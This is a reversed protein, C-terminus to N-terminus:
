LTTVKEDTIGWTLTTGRTDLFRRSSAVLAPVQFVTHDVALIVLDYTAIEELPVSQKEETEVALFPVFPDHYEVQGVEEKLLSLLSLIPSERWDEVDKKYSVGLVLVSADERKLETQELILCVKKVVFAPMEENSAIAVPIIRSFFGVEKGKWDLYHPDIAICHGGVGPGPRFPMIGFPKTFAGALVEWVDLELAECMQAMENVLGINVSRFTNEFLKAMEAAEATSLPVVEDVFREYFAVALELSDGNVGGVLKPTNGIDYERNGPDVREPSFAVFLNEELCLGAGQLLPLFVEKTTGPYTTSELVVLLNAKGWKQITRAAVEVAGLDPTNGEGLPTPVAVLVVDSDTLASRETTARFRGTSLAEALRKSSIGEVHSMGKNLGEVTRPSIDLGVVDMGAEAAHLALPLGVYGMGMVVVRGEERLRSLLATKASQPQNM